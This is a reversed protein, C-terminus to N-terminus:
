SFIIMYGFILIFFGVFSLVANNFGMDFSGAKKLINSKLIGSKYIIVAILISAFYLVTKSLYSYEDMQIDYEFIFEIVPRSLIGGLFCFIGLILVALRRQPVVWAKKFGKWGFFISSYNVFILITGINLMFMGYELLGGKMGEQILFKSMSGSLMPAGTIGLIALISAVAPVPAQRLVGRIKTIDRTGYVEVIIGATLFLVVKFLAHNAIHYIGGRYSLDYGSNIATMILGVQSVTSYALIRKIDTQLVALSFGIIGTIFGIALFLGNIDVVAEFALQMRIFLFIGLKVYIGSLVASVISPAGPTGHARPLWTFLPVLAAKFSVGTIIFAFAIKADGAIYNGTQFALSIRDFDFYGVSKYIFGIGFLIFIAAIINLLLYIMADYISRKHMKYVLLMSVILTSIEIMVYINFLDNSLLIGLVLSQWVMLLFYLRKDTYDPANFNFLHIFFFVFVTISIFVCSMVDAKLNIGAYHDWGGISYIYSGYNRVYFFVYLSLALLGIQTVFVVYKFVKYPSFLYAIMGVLIPVLVFIYLPVM